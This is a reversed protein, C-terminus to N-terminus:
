TDIFSFVLTVIGIFFILIGISLVYKYPIAIRNEYHSSYTNDVKLDGKTLVIELDSIRTSYSKGQAELAIKFKYIDHKLTTFPYTISPIFIGFILLLLGVKNVLKNNIIKM